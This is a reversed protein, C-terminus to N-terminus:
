PHFQPFIHITAFAHSHVIANCINIVVAKAYYFLYLFM